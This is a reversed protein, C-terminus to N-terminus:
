RYKKIEKILKLVWGVKEFQEDSLTDFFDEIPCSGSITRFFEIERV